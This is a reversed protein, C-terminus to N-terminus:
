ILKLYFFFIQLSPFHDFVLGAKNARTHTMQASTREDSHSGKGFCCGLICSYWPKKGPSPARAARAAKQTDEVKKPTGHRDTQTILDTPPPTSNLAVTPRAPKEPTSESTTNPLMHDSASGKTITSMESERHCAAEVDSDRSFLV